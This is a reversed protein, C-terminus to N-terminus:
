SCAFSPWEFNLLLNLHRRLLHAAPSDQMPFTPLFTPVRCSCQCGDFELNKARRYSILAFFFFFLKLVGIQFPIGLSGSSARDRKPGLARLLGKSLQVSKLSSKKKKIARALSFGRVPFNLKSYLLTKRPVIKSNM